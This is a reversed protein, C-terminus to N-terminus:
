GAEMLAAAIRSLHAAGARTNLEGLENLVRRAERFEGLAGPVDHAHALLLNALAMRAEAATLTDTLGEAEYIELAEQYEEIAKAANGEEATVKAMTSLLDAGESTELTGLRSFISRAASFSGRVDPSYQFEIGHEYRTTALERHLEGAAASEPLLACLAAGAELDALAGDM